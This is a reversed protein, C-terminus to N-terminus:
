KKLFSRVYDVAHEIDETNPAVHWVNPDGSGDSTVALITGDNFCEIDAYRRGNVFSIGVGNEVSPSVKDPVFNAHFLVKLVTDSWYLAKENPREAGYSDWNHQLDRMKELQRFFKVFENARQDEYQGLKGLMPVPAVASGGGRINLFINSSEAGGVPATRHIAVNQNLVSFFKERCMTVPIDAAM